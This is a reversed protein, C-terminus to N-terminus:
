AEAATTATEDVTKEREAEGLKTEEGDQVVSKILKELDEEKETNDAGDDPQGETEKRPEGKGEEINIGAVKDEIEQKGGDGYGYM